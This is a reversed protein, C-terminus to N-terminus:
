TLCRSSPDSACDEAGREGLSPEVPDVDGAPPRRDASSSHEDEVEPSTNPNAAGDTRDGQFEPEENV